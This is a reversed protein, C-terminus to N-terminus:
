FKSLFEAGQESQLWEFVIQTIDSKGLGASTYICIAKSYPYSGNAITEDTPLVGGVSLLQRKGGIGSIPDKSYLSYGIAGPRNDYSVKSTFVGDQGSLKDVVADAKTELPFSEAFWAEELSQPDAFFASVAMDAGGLESWKKVTGNFVSTLQEPALDTLGNSPSGFFVLADYGIVIRQVEKGSQTMLQVAAEDPEFGIVIDCENNSLKTYCEASTETVTLKEAVLSEEDTRLLAAALSSGVYSFNKDTCILPLNEETIDISGEALGDPTETKKCSCLVLMVTICLFLCISRKM